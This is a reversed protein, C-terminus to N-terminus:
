KWFHSIIAVTVGSLLAAGITTTISSIIIWPAIKQDMGFKGAEAMLKRQETVFKQTEEQLKQTEARKRDIEAIVTRLDLRDRYDAPFDSM